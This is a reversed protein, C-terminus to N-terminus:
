SNKGIKAQRRRTQLLAPTLSSGAKSLCRQLFFPSSIRIGTFVLWEREIAALSESGCYDM